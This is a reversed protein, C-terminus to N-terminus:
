SVLLTGVWESVFVHLEGSVANRRSLRAMRETIILFKVAELLRTDM